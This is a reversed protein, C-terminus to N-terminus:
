RQLQAKIIDVIDQATVSYICAKLWRVFYALPSFHKAISPQALNSEGELYKSEKEVKASWRLLELLKLCGLWNNHKKKQRCLSIVSFAVNLLWWCSMIPIFVFSKGNHLLLSFHLLLFFFFDINHLANSKLFQSLQIVYIDVILYFFFFSKLTAM